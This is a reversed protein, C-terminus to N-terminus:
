AQGGTRVASMYPMDPLTERGLLPGAQSRSPDPRVVRRRCHCSVVMPRPAFHQRSNGRCGAIAQTCRLGNRDPDGFETDGSRGGACPSAGDLARSLLLDMTRRNPSKGRVNGRFDRGIRLGTSQTWLIRWRGAYAATALNFTDFLSLSQGLGLKKTEVEDAPIFLIVLGLFLAIRILFGM